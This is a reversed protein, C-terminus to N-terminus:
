SYRNFPLFLFLTNLAIRNYLRYRISSLGFSVWDYNVKNDLDFEGLLLRDVYTEKHKSFNNDLM